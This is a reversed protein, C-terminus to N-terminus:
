KFNVGLEFNLGGGYNNNSNMITREYVFSGGGGVHFYVIKFDFYKRFILNSTANFNLGTDLTASEVFSIGWSPQWVSKLTDNTKKLDQIVKVLTDKTENKFERLVSDVL